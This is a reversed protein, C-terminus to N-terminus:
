QKAVGAANLRFPGVYATGPLGVPEPLAVPLRTNMTARRGTAWFFPAYMDPSEPPLRSQLAYALLSFYAYAADDFPRDQTVIYAVDFRKPSASSDPIRPGGASTMIEQITRTQVSTATVRQPDSLNPNTLVHVPPVQDAPILGMVYLELPSYPENTTNAVIRWTGDGNAAFHGIVGGPGFYYAGLQGGIDSMDDWHGQAGDTLGLSGGIGAGWTHAVEHDFIQIDGFSEYVTSRLRGASGFAATHDVIPLGIHQVSNAVLVNYPVNEGFGDPRFLTEGPTVIAVDFADPLVSYLQQYARFNTTGCFVTAVPYGDIVDHAADNIFFAYATASLGGGLNKVAFAGEFRSHVFGLSYQHWAPIRATSALTVWFRGGYTAASRGYRLASEACLPRVGSRTFVLDGATADGHTGDDYLDVLQNSATEVEVKVVDTRGAVHFEMTTTSSPDNCWLVSPTARWWHNERPFLAEEAPALGTTLGLASLGALVALLVKAVRM